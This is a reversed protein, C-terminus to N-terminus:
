ASARVVLHTHLRVHLPAREGGMAAVLSEAMRRGLEEIPQHVTTLPPQTAQAIPIDDFGTVAVDDPVRLGADAIARLAGAAMLDNAVFVGDVRPERGLLEVMARHGGEVTYDGTAVDDEAPTRGAALLAARWGGLRDMAGAMDTPGTITAIRRCGREVLRQTAVGAGQANDVDVVPLEAAGPHLSRGAMVVPVGLADLRAPTDEAGHLSVFMAADLHGGAAFRELRDRDEDTAVVVFVLQLGRAALVKHAGKLVTSFFPDSFFKEEPECVVFAVTDSRRTVLSRAAANPVYSLERAAALVKQRAAESVKPSGTLVRSATARSVGAAAAVSELTAPVRSASGVM